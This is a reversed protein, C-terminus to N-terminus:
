GQKIRLDSWSTTSYSTHLRNFVQVSLFSEREISYLKNIVEEIILEGIDVCNKFENM